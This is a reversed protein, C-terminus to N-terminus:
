WGQKGRKKKKQHRVENQDGTRKHGTKVRKKIQSMKEILYSFNRLLQMGKRFESTVLLSILLSWFFVESNIVHAHILILILMTFYSLRLHSSSFAYAHTSKGMGSKLLASAHTFAYSVQQRDLHLEVANGQGHWDDRLPATRRFCLSSCSTCRERSNSFNM